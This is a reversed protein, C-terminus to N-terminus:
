IHNPPEGVVRLLADLATDFEERSEFAMVAPADPTGFVAALVDILTGVAGLLRSDDEVEVWSLEITMAARDAHIRRLGLVDFGAHSTAFQREDWSRESVDESYVCLVGDTIEYWKKGDTWLGLTATPVLLAGHEAALRRLDREYGPEAPSLNVKGNNQYLWGGDTHVGIDCLPFGTDLLSEVVARGEPLSIRHRKGPFPENTWSPQDHVREFRPDPPSGDVEPDVAITVATAYEMAIRTADTRLATRGAAHRQDLRHTEERDEPPREHPLVTRDAM